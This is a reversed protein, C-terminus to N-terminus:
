SSYVTSWFVADHVESPCIEAFRQGFVTLDTVVNAAFM